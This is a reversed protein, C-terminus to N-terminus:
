IKSFGFNLLNALLTSEIELSKRHPNVIPNVPTAGHASGNDGLQPWEPSLSSGEALLLWGFFM